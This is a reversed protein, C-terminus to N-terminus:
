SSEGIYYSQFTSARVSLGGFRVTSDTQTITIGGHFILPFAMTTSSLISSWYYGWTDTNNHSTENWAGEAPLFIYNSSDTKSTFKRGYVGNLTVWTSNTNNILEHGQDQTFMKWPSGMNARAADYTANGQSIDGTLTYGQGCKGANYDAQTFSYSGTGNKNQGIIAGWSFYKTSNIM